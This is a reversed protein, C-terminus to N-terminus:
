VKPGENQPPRKKNRMALTNKVASKAIIYIIMLVLFIVLAITAIEGLKSQWTATITGDTVYFFLGAITFSLVAILLVSRLNKM